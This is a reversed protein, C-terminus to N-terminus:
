VWPNVGAGTDNGSYGALLLSGLSRKMDKVFSLSDKSELNDQIERWPGDDVEPLTYNVATWWEEWFEEFSGCFHKRATEYAQM